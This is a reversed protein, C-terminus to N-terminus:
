KGRRRAKKSSRKPPRNGSRTEAAGNAGPGAAGDESVNREEVTGDDSPAIYRLQRAAPGG